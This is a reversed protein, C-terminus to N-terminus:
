NGGNVKNKEEEALDILIQDLIHESVSQDRPTFFTKNKFTERVEKRPDCGAAINGLFEEIDRVSKAWYVAEGLEKHNYFQDLKHATLMLPKGTLLYELSFTTGDTIIGNSVAFATRYDETQDLIVNDRGTKQAIFTDLKEKTMYGNNVIAGFLLPHPRWLLVMDDREEFLRFIDQYYDLWTSVCEPGPKITHHPCWLVVKRGAIKKQWQAPVPYCHEGRYNDVRPHGWVAINEGNRYGYQTGLEKVIEGYALHRWARYHAYEQFAYHILDKTM